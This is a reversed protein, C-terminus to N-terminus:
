QDFGHPIQSLGIGHRVAAGDFQKGFVHPRPKTHGIRRQASVKKFTKESSLASWFESEGYCFFLTVAGITLPDFFNAFHSGTLKQAVCKEQYNEIL